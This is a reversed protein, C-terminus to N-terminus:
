RISRFLVQTFENQFNVIVRVSDDIRLRHGLVEEDSSLRHSFNFYFALKSTINVLLHGLAVDEHDLSTEFAWQIEKVEVEWNQKM